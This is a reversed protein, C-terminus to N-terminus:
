EWDLFMRLYNYDNNLDCMGRYSLKILFSKAADWIRELVAAPRANGAKISLNTLQRHYM